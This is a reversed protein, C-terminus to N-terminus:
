EIVEDAIALIGSPINIGLGRATTLNIVFEFRTAQLIPLDGPSKGKLIQGSYIGCQRYGDVINPGYSMLGGAVVYERDAYATPLSHRAALAVLQDVRSRFFGDADVVLASAHQKVVSLIASNIEQENSARVIVINRGGERGSEDLKRTDSTTSTNNPNILVAILNTNPILECLLGLRKPLVVNSFYTVGTANGGPRSLNTVLGDAVPDGGNFFVIPITATATRAALAANPSGGAAILAVGRRVLEDALVALHDFHGEAWRYEIKVNQDTIYGVEYLGQKFARLRDQFGDPSASNLFGIIPMSPQQANAAFASAASGIIGKVFDRRRM